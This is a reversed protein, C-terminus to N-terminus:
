ISPLKPMLYYMKIKSNKTRALKRKRPEPVYGKENIEKSRKKRREALGVCRGRTQVHIDIVAKSQAFYKPPIAFERFGSNILTYLIKPNKGICHGVAIHRKKVGYERYYQHISKLDPLIRIKLDRSSIKAYKFEPNLEEIWGDIDIISFDYGVYDESSEVAEYNDIIVGIQPKDIKVDYYFYNDIIMKWFQYDDNNRTYPIALKINAKYLRQAEKVGEFFEIFLQPFEDFMNDDLIHNELYSITIEDRFNPLSIFIEKDENGNCLKGLDQCVERRTRVTGSTLYQFEPKYFCVGNIWNSKNLLHYNSVNDNCYYLKFKEYGDTRNDKIKENNNQEHIDLDIKSNLSICFEISQNQSDISVYRGKVGPNNSIVCPISFENTLIMLQETEFVREFIFGKINNSLNFFLDPNFEYTFVIINHNVHKISEAFLLRYISRSIIEDVYELCENFAKLHRENIFLCYEKVFNKEMSTIIASRFAAYLSMKKDFLNNKLISDVKASKIFCFVDSWCINTDHYINSKFQKDLVNLHYLEKEIIKNYATYISEIDVTSLNKISKFESFYHLEGKTCGHYIKTKKFDLSKM